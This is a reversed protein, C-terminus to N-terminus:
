SSRRAREGVLRQRELRPDLRAWLRRHWPMIERSTRDLQTRLVAARLAAPEGVGAPSYIARTVFRALEVLSRADVPLEREVRRAYEVPTAGAPASAGALQLAGVTGHWAAIVQDSPTRGTRTFRRVAIPMLVAWAGLASLALLVWGFPGIRPGDGTTAVSPPLTTSTPTAPAQGLPDRETTPTVQPATTSPAPVPDGTGPETASSDQAAPVGTLDESGPAGRGPTPEFLV